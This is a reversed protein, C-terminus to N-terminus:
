RIWIKKALKLRDGSNEIIIYGAKKCLTIAAVNDTTTDLIM